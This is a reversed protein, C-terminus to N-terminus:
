DNRQRILDSAKVPKPKPPREPAAFEIVPEDEDNGSAGDIPLERGARQYIVQTLSQSLEAMYAVVALVEACAGQVKGPAKESFEGDEGGANHLIVNRADRCSACLKMAAEVEARVVPDIEKTKVLQKLLKERDSPRMPGTVIEATQVDTDLYLWLMRNLYHEAENWGVAIEGIKALVQDRNM